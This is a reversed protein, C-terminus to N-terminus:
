YESISATVAAALVKDADHHQLPDSFFAAFKKQREALDTWQLIYTLQPYNAGIMTEWFGIMRFGNKTFIPVTYREFKEHMGLRNDYVLDYVRLEYLM